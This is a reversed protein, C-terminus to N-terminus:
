SKFNRYKISLVTGIGMIILGFLVIQWGYAVWEPNSYMFSSEPGIKSQGQFHFIFGLALTIMGFVIMLKGLQMKENKMFFYFVYVLKVFSKKVQEKIM